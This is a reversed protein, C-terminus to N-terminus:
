MLGASPKKFTKVSALCTALRSPTGYQKIIEDFDIGQWQLNDDVVEFDEQPWDFTQDILDLIQQAHLHTLLARLALDFQTVHRM